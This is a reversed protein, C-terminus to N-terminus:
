FLFHMLDNKFYFLSHLFLIFEGSFRSQMLPCLSKLHYIHIQIYQQEGTFPLGKVKKKL